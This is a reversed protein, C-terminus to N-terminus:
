RPQESVSERAVAWTAAVAADIGEPNWHTDDPWYLLRDKAALERFLPLLNVVRVDSGKLEEEIDFLCSPALGPPETRLRDPLWDRYTQEKDPILVIVLSTGRQKLVDAVYRVADAILEPKREARTWRMAKVAPVYFLFRRGEIPASAEVVMDESVESFLHYRIVTWVRRSIQALASSAPLSTKLQLPSLADPHLVWRNDPVAVKAKEAKLRGILGSFIDGGIEREVLGWVVVSPPDKVFRPDLVFREICFLPGRGAESYNYVPLGSLSALSGSFTNSASIGTAMYSDGVVVVPCYRGAMAPPNPWGFEDRYEVRAPRPQAFAEVLGPVELLRTLDGGSGAPVQWSTAEATQVRPRTALNVHWRFWVFRLGWDGVVLVLWLLGLAATFWVAKKNLVDKM